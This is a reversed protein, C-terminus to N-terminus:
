QPPVYIKEILVKNEDSNVGILAEHQVLEVSILDYLALEVIIHATTTDWTQGSMYFMQIRENKLIVADHRKDRSRLQAVVRYYGPDTCVFVGNRYQIEFVIDLIDYVVWPSGKLGNLDNPASQTWLNLALFSSLVRCAAGGLTRFSIQFTKRQLGLGM